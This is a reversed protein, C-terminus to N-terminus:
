FDLGAKHGVDFLHERAATYGSPGTSPLPPNGMGSKARCMKSDAKCLLPDPNGLPGGGSEM